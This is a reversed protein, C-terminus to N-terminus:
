LVFDHNLLLFFFEADRHLKRSKSLQKKRLSEMERDKKATEIMENFSAEHEEGIKWSKVVRVIEEVKTERLDKFQILQLLLVIEDKDESNECVWNRLICFKLCNGLCESKMMMKIFDSTFQVYYLQYPDCEMFLSEKYMSLEVLRSSIYEMTDKVTNDLGLINKTYHIVDKWNSDCLKDKM